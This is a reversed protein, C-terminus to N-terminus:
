KKNPNYFLARMSNIIALLTVGVDAFVASAMGTIGLTGLLLFLLKIGMSVVINELVIKKTYKSIKIGNFIKHPDDDVIVIDSAEISADSGNIGMSIGVDALMLSPADNLGDGVYALKGAKEKKLTELKNYKDQPLLSYYYENINLEQAVSSVSGMNDGSLIISNIGISKLDQSLAYSTSKVTDTLTIEGIKVNNSVVSVLTYGDNRKGKERGIFYTNYNYEFYIGEGAIEKVNSVSDLPKRNAKLIATAIPHLSNQEGLAAIYLIEEKNFKTFSSVSHISFEGTTLTGTKDLAVTKIESCADLYNSGKILIGYKSANGIGSFYSLPVSIAFACPCSVVLFILGRYIAINLDHSMLFIVMFTILSAIIVGLTYWKSIKSIITETKSKNESATTILNLIKNATSKSYEHTTKIKLVGDLVISGSMIKEGQNIFVPLSEGTLSQMDVNASGEIVEGDIAVKEGAKVLIISDVEVNNPDMRKEQHNILVTVEDMQLNTLKEISKKSKELALGEFIKGISYLGIVMLSESYEGLIAAGIVSITLLFNENIVGTFILKFAKYYTKYGFLVASIVFLISFLLKYSEFVFALIAFVVGLLLSAIDIIISNEVKSNDLVIKADPEIRKSVKIIDRIAKSYEDTEVIIFGNVFDISASQIVKIDNIAKELARACNPCDLGQIKIKHKM